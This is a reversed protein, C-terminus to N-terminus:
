REKIEAAEYALADAIGPLHLQRDFERELSFPSIPFLYSPFLPFPSVRFNLREKGEEGKSSNKKERGRKEEETGRNM